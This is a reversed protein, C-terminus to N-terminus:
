PCSERWLETGVITALRVKSHITLRTWQLVSATGMVYSRPRLTLGFTREGSKKKHVPRSVLTMLASPALQGLLEM